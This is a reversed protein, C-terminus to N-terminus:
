LFVAWPQLRQVLALVDEGDGRVLSCEMCSWKDCVFFRKTHSCLALKYQERCKISLPCTGQKRLDEECKWCVGRHAWM